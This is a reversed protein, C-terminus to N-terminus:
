NGIPFNEATWQEMKVPGEKGLFFGITFNTLIQCQERYIHHRWWKWYQLVLQKTKGIRKVLDSHKMVENCLGDRIPDPFDDRLLLVSIPILLLAM